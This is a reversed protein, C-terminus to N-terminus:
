FKLDCYIPMHDSADLADDHITDYYLSEVGESILIHDICEITKLQTSTVSERGLIWHSAISPDRSVTLMGNSIHGTRCVTGTVKANKSDLLNNQEMLTTISIESDNANYDGSMMFPVNPYKAKWADIVSKMGEAQDLREGVSLAWHTSTFIFKKGSEKIEFVAITFNRCQYNGCVPDLHAQTWEVLNLVETNYMITSYNTYGNVKNESTSSYNIFKYKASLNANSSLAAYWEDDCEQLGIVDPMYRLITNVVKPARPSVAPKNNYDDCLVNFSMARVTTDEARESANEKVAFFSDDMTWRAKLTINKSVVNTDFDWENGNYYWGDFVFNYTVGNANTYTYSPAEPMVAKGGTIVYQSAVVDKSGNTNFTVTNERIRSSTFNIKIEYIGLGKYSGDWNSMTIYTKGDIEFLGQYNNSSGVSPKPSLGKNFLISGSYDLVKLQFGNTT